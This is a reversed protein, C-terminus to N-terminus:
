LVMAGRGHLCRDIGRWDSLWAAEVFEASEPCDRAQEKNILEKQRTDEEVVKLLYKLAIHANALAM